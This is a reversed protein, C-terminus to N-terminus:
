RIVTLLPTQETISLGKAPLIDQYDESNSIIVPTTLDYGAATIAVCDFELLLDGTNVRDGVNVHATFYQGELKVTDIGVHILIETGFDSEIGIAHHTKFLSAVVGAVPSVVRGHQPIIAIGAGLLGSAFTTDNVDTLALLQGSIPSFVVEGLGQHNETIFASQSLSETEPVAIPAPLGFFFTGIAAFILAILTGIIAGWVSADIGTAPIIQAFSFISALGFSYVHAQSYGVIVGGIAGGICGFIFPKKTPLTVGYVAPETIGFIGATFASGALVKMKADRTRLFVGLTAGVQGMVAPLLLPLMADYGLVSLNNIMLPVLGWHLGFIVCIQWIGALVGGAIPPAASYILQFGTALLHSLWTALPGILLFTAPVTIALCLLPTFFNKISSHLIRNFGKELRCSVWAALIVPIVSSTYNIFTVPIGLFYVAAANPQGAANFAALMLPHVLAGGIAMTIFPNGGFKKGATYGLVLPFFYFLSDSAAFLIMYSGSTPQLWGCVVSLALFGKLIGSAALIGLLPTFIGSIIDISHSLLNEKQSGPQHENEDGDSLGAQRLLAQYVESVHNGIVVQFQGGSEVVMIVGPNKKLALADARSSDKLKFRLRTACHVVSNINSKGGVGALIESAVTTYQM